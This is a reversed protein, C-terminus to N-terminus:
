PVLGLLVLRALLHLILGILLWSVSVVVTSVTPPLTTSGFGYAVLPGVFGAIIFAVAVNNLATATLKTQENHIAGLAVVERAHLALAEGDLGLGATAM